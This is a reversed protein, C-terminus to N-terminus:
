PQVMGAGQITSKMGNKQYAVETPVKNSSGPIQHSKVTTTGKVTYKEGELWTM